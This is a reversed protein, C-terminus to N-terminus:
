ARQPWPLPLNWASHTGSPRGSTSPRQFLDRQPWRATGRIAERLRKTCYDLPSPQGAPHEGGNLLV